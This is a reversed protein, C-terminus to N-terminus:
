LVDHPFRFSLLAKRRRAMDAHRRQRRDSSSANEVEIIGSSMYGDEGRFLNNKWKSGRKKESKVNLGKRM